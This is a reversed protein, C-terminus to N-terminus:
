QPMPEVLAKLATLEEELRQIQALWAQRPSPQGDPTLEFLALV